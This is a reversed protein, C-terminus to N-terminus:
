HCFILVIIVFLSISVAFEPRHISDTLAVAQGTTSPKNLVVASSGRTKVNSGSSGDGTIEHENYSTHQRQLPSLEPRSARPSKLPPSKKTGVSQLHSVSNLTRGNATNNSTPETDKPSNSDDDAPMYVLWAQSDGVWATYIRDGQFACVTATTGSSWLGERKGENLSLNLEYFVYALLDTLPVTNRGAQRKLGLSLLYPALHSCHEAAEPGNHGDFVGVAFVPATKTSDVASLKSGNKAISLVYNLLDATAFWRDEQRRRRNMVSSADVSVGLSTWPTFTTSLKLVSGSSLCLEVAKRLCDLSLSHVTNYDFS